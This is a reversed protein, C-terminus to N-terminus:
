KKSKRAHWILLAILAIFAAIASPVNGNPINGDM